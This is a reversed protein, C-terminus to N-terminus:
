RGLGGPEQRRGRDQQRSQPPAHTLTATLVQRRRELEPDAFTVAMEHRAVTEVVARKFAEDGEISLHDGYKTRAMRLAAVIGDKRDAELHLREGADRVRAGHLDYIVEGSKLVKPAMRPFVHVTDPRGVFAGLARRRQASPVSEQPLPLGKGKRARAKLTRLAEVSGATAEDILYTQWGRPRHQRYVNQVAAQHQRYAQQSELLRRQRLNDCLQRKQRWGLLPDALVRARQRQYAQRKEQKWHERQKRLEDIKAKAEDHQQREKQWSEWLPSTKAGAHLPAAQYRIEPELQRVGQSPPEYPGFRKELSARTFDRGLASAKVAARGRRATVAMGAGRPRIELDLRAMHAHLGEWSRATELAATLADKPEGQIWSEFSVLGGHAEMDCARGSTAKSERGKEQRRSHDIRNDQSLGHRQELVRCAEDLKYFDKLPTVNRLTDPHVKNIAVHMHVHETDTHVASIRQHEGYGLARCLEAECDELQEPTPNDEARFSIILHYTKDAGSTTNLAQAAEIEKIAAWPQDFGCNTLRVHPAPGEKMGARLIYAALTKFNSQCDRRRGSKKAIM